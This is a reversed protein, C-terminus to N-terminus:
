RQLSARLLKVCAVTQRRIVFYFLGRLIIAGQSHTASQFLINNQALMELKDTVQNQFRVVNECQCMSEDFSKDAPFSFLSILLYKQRRPERLESRKWGQGKEPAGERQDRRAGERGAPPAVRSLTLSFLHHLYTVASCFHLNYIFNNHGVCTM